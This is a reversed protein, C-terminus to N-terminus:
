LNMLPSTETGLEVIKMDQLGELYRKTISIDDHGLLRSLSYVDLGNRLQSQAYYHRCTHPSTRIEDRVVGNCALKVIREIAEITLPRNRFSLFYNDYYLANDKLYSSRIREYKIM